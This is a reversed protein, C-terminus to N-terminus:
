RAYRLSWDAGNDSPQGLLIPPQQSMTILHLADQKTGQAQQLAGELGLLKPPISYIVWLLVSIPFVNVGIDLHEQM